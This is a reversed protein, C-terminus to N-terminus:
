GKSQQNITQDKRMSGMSSGLWFEKVGNWGGILMLMVVATQMESTFQAQPDWLVFGGGLAAVIVFLLSLLEVFVFKGAVPERGHALSFERAKALSAEDMEKFKVMMGMWQDFNEAVAQRFAEAAAPNTAIQQAADQENVAGTVKMAVDAVKQAVVANRESMPGKGFLRILDPAAGFLTQLVASLIVPIPMFDETPTEAMPQPSPVTEPAIAEGADDQAAPEPTEAPEMLGGWRLYTEKARATAHNEEPGGPLSTWENKCLSCAREFDGAIVASLAKRTLLRAVAFEDQCQESFDPWHYRALEESWTTWTAQYAGAASSLKGGTTPEMIRPHKSLDDFYAPPKGLGGWRVHYAEPGQSSEGARIARLFAQVNRNALAQQLFARNM